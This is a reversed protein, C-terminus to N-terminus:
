EIIDDASNNNNNKLHVKESSTINKRLVTKLPDFSKRHLPTWMGSKILDMHEPSAYGKNDNLKFQPYQKHYENMMRDRTVKAIVSAAAISVSKSDGKVICQHAVKLNRPASNGDILAFCKTRDLDYTVILQDVAKTMANMTAQLINVRDVENPPVRVISYKVGPYVVLHNYVQERAAESTYKKSDKIPLQTIKEIGKKNRKSITLNVDLPLICAVVVLEGFLSGRGVEDVGIVHAYGKTIHEREFTQPAQSPHCTLPTKSEDM